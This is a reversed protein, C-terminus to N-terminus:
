QPDFAYMLNTNPLAQPRNLGNPMANNYQKYFPSGQAQADLDSPLNQGTVIAKLYDALLIAQTCNCGADYHMIGRQWRQYVFNQNSPDFAPNSTPVGWMELDIGLLLNPDGGNPFAVQFAVTNSFTRFFNVSKGGFTDQAVRNLFLPPQGPALTALYAEIQQDSMGAIARDIAEAAALAEEAAARPPLARWQPLLAENLADVLPRSPAIMTGDRRYLEMRAHAFRDWFATHALATALTWGGGLDRGLDADSRKQLAALRARERDNAAEHSRDVPM